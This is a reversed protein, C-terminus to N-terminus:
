AMPGCYSNRMHFGYQEVDAKKIAEEIGLEKNALILELKDFFNEEKITISAYYPHVTPKFDYIPKSLIKVVDDVFNARYPEGPFFHRFTELKEKASMRSVSHDIYRRLKDAYYDVDEFRDYLDDSQMSLITNQQENYFM